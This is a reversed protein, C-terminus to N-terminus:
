ATALDKNRPRGFPKRPVIGLEPRQLHNALVQAVWENMPMDAADAATGILEKLRPDLPVTLIVSPRMRKARKKM